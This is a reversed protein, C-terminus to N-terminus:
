FNHFMLVHEFNIEIFYLTKKINKKVPINNKYTENQSIYVAQVTSSFFGIPM